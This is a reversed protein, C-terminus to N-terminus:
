INVAGPATFSYTYPNIPQASVRITGGGGQDSIIVDISADSEDASTVVEKFSIFIVTQGQDCCFM